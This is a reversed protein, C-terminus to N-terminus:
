DHNSRKVYRIYEVNSKKSRQSMCEYIRDRLDQKQMNVPLEKNPYFPGDIYTVIRPNKSHKRKQYTNTFCFSPVDFKIPYSFSTAKYPRIKTYYPWIHAEPYVVICQGELIRKEIANMFNKFANLDTPIPLAGLHPTVKGLIPMSVNNPHVIMYAKKPFVLVNPIFADDTEQTHNGFLFYGSKKAQKLLHKNEVKLKFKMKPHIFAIPTAIMRYWFFSAMKYFINRHLYKYDIGIEKTKIQAKSFEDNLEDQYYITKTTKKKVKLVGRIPRTM